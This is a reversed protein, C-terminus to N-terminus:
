TRELTRGRGERPVSPAGGAAGATWPGGGRRRLICGALGLCLAALAFGALVDVGYHFRLALTSLWLVAVPGACWAARRRHGALVDFGLLYATVACHLSPFADALNTGLPVTALLLRTLGYGRVPTAFAMTAYPGLAPLLTYGTFGAAYLTFLGTYFARAQRPPTFLWALAMALLYPFFLGYCLSMAETPLAGFRGALWHPVSIGLLRLDLAQLLADVHGPHFLPISRRLDQFVFCMLPVFAFLRAREAWVGGWRGAVFAFALIAAALAAYLWGSPVGMRVATFLLFGTFAAEHLMPRPHERM